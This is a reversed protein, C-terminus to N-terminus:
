PAIGITTGPPSSDGDPDQNRTSDYPGASDVVDTVTFSVTSVKRKDLGDLHLECRTLDIQCSAATPPISDGTFEGYVWADPLSQGSSDAVQVVAHADWWIGKGHTHADLDVVFVTTQADAVNDVTVTIAATGTGGETDVAVASLQHAGDSFQTTDLAIGWGGSGDADVGVSTGDVKFEVSDMTVDSTVSAEVSVTGTLTAGDAPTTITVVPVSAMAAVKASVDNRLDPLLAYLNDGPCETSAWDRHGSIADVTRSEFTVPNVYTVAAEPDIGHRHSFEALVDTLSGLAADTPTNVHRPHYTFDGLLAVGVNGSNNGGTHAATVMDADATADEHAFDAGTGGMECPTSTTGSYRGEYVVGYQDVLYHYGIDGWGNDVAHYEYIARVTAEPDTDGNSTATHHVTMVQAPHFDPTWTMLHEDAGWEARTQCSTLARAGAPIHGVVEVPGDTTNLAVARANRAHDPLGHVQFADADRGGVLGSTWQGPADAGDPILAVWPGWDGDYRFRVWGYEGPEEGAVHDDHLVQQHEDWIVGVYDISFGPRVAEGSVPANHRLTVPREVPRDAHAPLVVITGLLAGIVVVRFLKGASAGPARM